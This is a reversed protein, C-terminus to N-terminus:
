KGKNKQIYQKISEPSYSLLKGIRESDEPTAKYSLLGGYKKAINALEEAKVESGPKYIIYLGNLDNEVKKIKLGANKIKLGLELDIKGGIAALDRKKDIITQVSKDDTDADEPEIYELLINSLKVM